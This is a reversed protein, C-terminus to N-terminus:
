DTGESLRGVISRYTESETGPRRRSRQVQWPDTLTIATESTIGGASRVSSDAALDAAMWGNVTVTDSASACDPLPDGAGDCDVTMTTTTSSSLSLGNGSATLRSLSRAFTTEGTEATKLGQVVGTGDTGITGNAAVGGLRIMRSVERAQANIRTRTEIEAKHEAGQLLLEWTVLLLFSAIGGAITLEPLTFGSQRRRTKM